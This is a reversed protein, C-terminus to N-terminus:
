LIRSGHEEIRACAVVREAALLPPGARRRHREPLVAVEGGRTVAIMNAQASDTDAAITRIRSRSLGYSPM